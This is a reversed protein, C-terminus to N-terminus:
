WARRRTLQFSHNNALFTRLQGAESQPVEQLPLRGLLKTRRDEEQSSSLRRVSVSRADGSNPGPDVVEAIHVEGIVTGESLQQTLGTMNTIVVRTAGDGPPSVVADELTLGTEKLLREGEVLFTEDKMTLYNLKVPVLASHSPPLKLSQVLSVTISAVTTKERRPTLTRPRAVGNRRGGILAVRM